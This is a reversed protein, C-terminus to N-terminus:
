EKARYLTTMKVTVSRRYFSTVDNIFCITDHLLPLAKIYVCYPMETPFIFVAYADAIGSLERLFVAYRDVKYTPESVSGSRTELILATM